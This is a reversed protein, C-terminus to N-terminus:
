AKGHNNLGNALEVSCHWEHRVLDVHGAAFAM